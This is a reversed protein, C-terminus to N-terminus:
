VRPAPVPRRDDLHRDCVWDTIKYGPAVLDRRKGDFVVFVCALHSASMGRIM